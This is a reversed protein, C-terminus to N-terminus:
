NATSRSVLGLGAYTWLKRNRRFRHPTQLVAMLVAVRV